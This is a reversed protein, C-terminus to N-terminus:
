GIEFRWDLYETNSQLYDLVEQVLCAEAQKQNPFQYFGWSYRDGHETVHLYFNAGNKNTAIVEM